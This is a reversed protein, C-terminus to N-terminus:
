RVFYYDDIWIWLLKSAGVWYSVDTDLGVDEEDRYFIGLFEDLLLCMVTLRISLLDQKSFMSTSSHMSLLTWRM